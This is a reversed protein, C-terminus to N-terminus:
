LKTRIRPLKTGNQAPKTRIEFRKTCFNLPKTRIELHKTCNYMNKWFYAGKKFFLNTGTHIKKKL